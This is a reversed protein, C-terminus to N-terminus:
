DHQMSNMNVRYYNLLLDFLDPHHIQLEFPAQFFYETVVAFFEEPGTAGYCDLLPSWGRQCNEVLQEYENRTVEIWRRAFEDDEIPPVGDVDRGNLMDLQHAFEHLVLNHGNNNDYGGRRADEWSLIVPGRYWAEGSRASNGMLVVGNALQQMGPAEYADPYVLISKVRDFYQPWLGCVLWGIQGSITVKIEDTMTLGGCGEWRKEPVLVKVTDVVAAQQQETLRDFFWLRELWIYWQEPTEKSRYRKRKWNRYWNLFPM